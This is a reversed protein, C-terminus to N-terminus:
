FDCDNWLLWRRKAFLYENRMTQYTPEKSLKSLFHLCSMVNSLSKLGLSLM